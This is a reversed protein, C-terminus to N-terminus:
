YNGNEFFIVGPELPKVSELSVSEYKTFNNQNYSELYKDMLASAQEISGAAVLAFSPFPVYHDDLPKLIFKYENM